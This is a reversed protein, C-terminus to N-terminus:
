VMKIKVMFEKPVDWGLAKNCCRDSLTPGFNWSVHRLSTLLLTLSMNPDRLRRMTRVIGRVAVDKNGFSVNVNSSMPIFTESMQVSHGDLM